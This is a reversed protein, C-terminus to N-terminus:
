SRLVLMQSKRGAGGGGGGLFIVVPVNVLMHVAVVRTPIRGHGFQLQSPL